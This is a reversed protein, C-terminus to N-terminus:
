AWRRFVLTVTSITSQPIIGPHREAGRNEKGRTRKWNQLSRDLQLFFKQFCALDDIRETDAALQLNLGPAVPHVEQLLKFGDVNGALGDTHDRDPHM